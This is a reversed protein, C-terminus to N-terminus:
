AISEGVQQGSLDDDGENCAQIPTLYEHRIRSEWGIM